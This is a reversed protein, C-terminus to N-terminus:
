ACPVKFPDLYWVFFPKRDRHIHPVKRVAQCKFGSRYMRCLCMPEIAGFSGQSFSRGFSSKRPIRKRSARSRFARQRSSVPVVVIADVVVVM